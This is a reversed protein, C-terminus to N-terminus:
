GSRPPLGSSASTKLPMARHRQVSKLTLLFSVLLASLSASCIWALVGFGLTLVRVFWILSGVFLALAVIRLALQLSRTLPQGSLLLWHKRQGLALGIFAAMQAVIAAGISLNASM